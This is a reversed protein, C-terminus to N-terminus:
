LLLFILLLLCNSKSPDLYEIILSSNLVCYLNLFFDINIHEPPPVSSLPKTIKLQECAKSLEDIRNEGIWVITPFNWQFNM